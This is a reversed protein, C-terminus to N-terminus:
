VGWDELLANVLREQRQEIHDYSWDLCPRLDETLAHVPAGMDFYVKRKDPFPKHAAADQQAQNILTLNGILHCVDDRRKPNPFREEWWAHNGKPLIHEATVDDRMSLLRGNPLAAEIRILLLRRTRDRKRSRNLIDVLKSQESATLELEAGGNKAEAVYLLRDDGVAALAKKYRVAQKRGDVVSLECAFTFLDLARFFRRAREHDQGHKVLFAIAAPAWDWREVQKLVHIRRNVEASAAGVDVNCHFIAHLVEGYRPLDEFLFKRVGGAKDVAYRFAALDGPSLLPAGTLLLPMMNLLEAFDERRFREEIKEWKRAAEDAESNSLGANEILDSKIIDAGSLPSGRMNLANFVTQACGREEADVVNLTCCRAVYSMFTDLVRDDVQLESDIVSAATAIADRSEVGIEAHRALETMRGPEQVFGRFFHVDDERLLIRAEEGDMVLKQYTKARNPLRDRVYAIVMTLTALRQQGDCVELKGKNKVLVIEGIFYFTANREFAGWLDKILQRVEGEGWTYARQYRPVKLGGKRMLVAAINLIQSSLGKPTAGFEDSM